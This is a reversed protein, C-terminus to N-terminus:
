QGLINVLKEAQQQLWKITNPGDRIISEVMDTNNTYAGAKLTDDIHCQLEIEQNISAAIGGQAYSSAGSRLNSKSILYINHDPALALAASLGAIGSGIILIDSSHSLYKKMNNCYCLTKDQALNQRSTM